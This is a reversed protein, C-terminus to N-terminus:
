LSSSGSESADKPGVPEIRVATLKYEPTGTVGDRNSGTVFNLFAEKTQFTALLQGAGVTASIRAPLVAAGYRSVVRVRDGDHVGAAGADAPSIDLLDSPRLEDNPTRRTMTGANFQYLSRGTVLLL